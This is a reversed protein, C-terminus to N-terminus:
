KMSDSELVNFFLFWINEFEISKTLLQDTGSYWLNPCNGVKCSNERDFHVRREISLAFQFKILM